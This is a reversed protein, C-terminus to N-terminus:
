NHAIFLLLDWLPTYGRFLPQPINKLWLVMFIFKLKVVVIGNQKLFFTVYALVELFM